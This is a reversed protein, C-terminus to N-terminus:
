IKNILPSIDKDWTQVGGGSESGIGGTIHTSTHTSIQVLSQSLRIGLLTDKVPSDRLAALRNAGRGSPVVAWSVGGCGQWCFGRRRGM